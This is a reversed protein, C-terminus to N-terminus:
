LLAVPIGWRSMLFTPPRSKLPLHYATIGAQGWLVVVKMELWHITKAKHLINRKKKKESSSPSKIVDEGKDNEKQALM